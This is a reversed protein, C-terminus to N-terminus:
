RATLIETEDVQFVHINATVDCAMFNPRTSGCSLPSIPATPGRTRQIGHGSRDAQEVPARHRGPEHEEGALAADSLGRHRGTDRHRQRIGAPPHQQHRRVRRRIQAVHELHMRALMRARGRPDSTEIQHIQVRVDGGVLVPRPHDPRIPTDQGVCLEHRPLLLERARARDLDRREVREGPQERVLRDDPRVVVHHEVRRRRPVRQSQQAQGGRPALVQARVRVRRTAEPREAAQLIVPRDVRPGDRHQAVRRHRHQREDRPGITAGERHRRVSSTFQGIEPDRVLTQDDVPHQDIRQVAIRDGLAERRHLPHRQRRHRRREFHEVRRHDRQGRDVEDTDRRQTPDDGPVDAGDIRGGARLTV